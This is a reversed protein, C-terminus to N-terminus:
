FCLWCRLVECVIDRKSNESKEAMHRELTSKHTRMRAVQNCVCLGFCVFIGWSFCVHSFFDM